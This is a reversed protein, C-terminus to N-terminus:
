IKKFQLIKIKGKSCLSCATFSSGVCVLESLFLLVTEKMHFEIIYTSFAHLQYFENDTLSIHRSSGLRRLTPYFPPHPGPICTESTDYVAAGMEM